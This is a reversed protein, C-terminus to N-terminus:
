TCEKLLHKAGSDDPLSKLATKAKASSIQKNLAAKTTDSCSKMVAAVVYGGSNDKTYSLVDSGLAAALAEAFQGTSGSLLRKVSGFARLREPHEHWVMQAVHAAVAELVLKLLAATSDDTSAEVTEYLVDMASGQGGIELGSFLVGPNEKFHELLAPLLAPRLEATRQEVSKKSIVFDAPLEPKLITLADGPLYRANAPSLVALMVRRAYVDELLVPVEAALEKIVVDRLLVTDDVVSLLQVLVLHGFEETSVKSIYERMSKIIQKRDKPSGFTVCGVGVLMGSRTHIMELLRESVHVAFSAKQQM